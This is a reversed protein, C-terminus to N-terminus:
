SEPDTIKVISGDAPIGKIMEQISGISSIVMPTHVDIFDHEIPMVRGNEIKTRQFKISDLRDGDSIQGIPICCPEFKFLYKRQFNDLIKQRVMQAKQLQEPTDTPMPSLPMDIARRRYYLTCGKINLDNLTLGHKDLVKNIGHDLEFLNTEIGQDKLAKEVLEFM